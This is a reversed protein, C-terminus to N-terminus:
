KESINSKELIKRIKKVEDLVQPQEEKKHEPSVKETEKKGRVIKLIQDKVEKFNEVGFISAEPGGQSGSQGATQIEVKGLGFKRYIPGQKTIINMIQNYPINQINKIWVGKEVIVESDSLKYSISDYFKSIWYHLFGYIPLFIGWVIVSALAATEFGKGLFTGITVSIPIILIFSILTRYYSKLNESPKGEENKEIDM